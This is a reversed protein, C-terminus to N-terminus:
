PTNCEGKREGQMEYLSESVVNGEPDRATMEMMGRFKDGHYTIVGHGHMSGKPDECHVSWSVDDGLVDIDEIRCQGGDEISNPIMDERTICKETMFPAPFSIGNVKVRVITEWRGEQLNIGAASVDTTSGLVVLLVPLIKLAM